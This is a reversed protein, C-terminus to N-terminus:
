TPRTWRGTRRGRATCASCGSGAAPGLAPFTGLAMLTTTVPLDCRRALAAAGGVGRRARRRRRRVAGAAAGGRDGGGRQAAARRQPADRTRYGPLSPAEGGAARAPGEAVDAPVDVVCRGRAARHARRPVGRPDGARRPRAGRGRDLAQRDAADHRDRRVGPVGDHRAPRSAVQAHHVRDPGLGHLRRRDATVLNTAGPGSTVLAVGVRGTAKAYGEAAHGPAPRTASSCTASRALRAARRPDGPSAGGPLGFVTDVGEAELAAILRDAGRM